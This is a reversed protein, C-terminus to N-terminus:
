KILEFDDMLITRDGVTTINGGKNDSLPRLQHRTYTSKDFRFEITEWEGFKVPMSVPAINNGGSDFKIHPFYDNGSIRYIKVRLGTYQSLNPIQSLNFDFFGSTGGTGSVADKLVKDSTNIGSKNPNDVVTLGPTNSTTFNSPKAGDEFNAFVFGGSAVYLTWTRNVEEGKANVAHYSLAFSGVEPLSYSLTASNSIENNNIKWSHVIGTGGYLVNATINLVDDKTLNVNEDNNSFTIELPREIVEITLNKTVKGVANIGTYAVNFNKVENLMFNHLLADTSVTVGDIKWEHTVNAGSEVIAMLKLEELQKRRIATSDGTSLQVKLVDSVTVTFEKSFEGANDSAVYKITYVGPQTFIYRFNLASGELLSEVYWRSTVRGETTVTAKLTVPEHVAVSISSQEKDFTVQPAGNKVPLVDDNTCTLVSVLVVSLITIRSLIKM